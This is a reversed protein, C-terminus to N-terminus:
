ENLNLRGSVLEKLANEIGISEAITIAKFVKYYDFVKKNVLERLYKARLDLEDYILGYNKRSLGRMRAIKEELLYSSGKGSFLFKDTSPDWNFIPIASVQDTNPDYGVLEYLSTQRRVL